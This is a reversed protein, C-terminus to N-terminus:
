LILGSLWNLVVMVTSLILAPYGTPSHCRQGRGTSTGFWRARTLLWVQLSLIHPRNALLPLSRTVNKM